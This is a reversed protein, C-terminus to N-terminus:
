NKGAQVSATEEATLQRVRQQYAPGFRDHLYRSWKSKKPDKNLFEQVMKREMSPRIIESRGVLTRVTKEPAPSVSLPLIQETDKAPVVWFVRLGPRSFYSHWWTQVMGNAEEKTLGTATLGDVMEKYVPRQWHSQTKLSTLPIDISTGAKLGQKISFFHTKRDETIEHVFLFPANDSSTNSIQITEKSDVTFTLPLSFNGVGRYFLYDEYEDAVKLVNAKPNRPRVWNLMEGPKFVLGRDADPALVDVEWEISGTRKKAFDIGGSKEFTETKIPTYPATRSSDFGAPKKINPLLEGGTRNPYWQSIIGGEFGVQVKATFPKDSYFYIVPTEMKITVNKLPRMMGKSMRPGLNNMGQFAHVFHPLNEEELHMGNLLVGDSGSISTFTGWEHLEYASTHLSCATITTLSLLPLKKM